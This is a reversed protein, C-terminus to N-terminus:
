KKRGKLADLLKQLADGAQKQVQEELGQQAAGALLQALDPLALQPADLTGGLGARLKNGGLVAAIKRGDKHQQLMATLDLGFDLRGDLHVAGSLAYEQGKSIWSLLESKITGQQLTFGGQLRDIALRGGEGVLALLGQLAPAPALSGQSLAIEGSGHWSDFVQVWNQEPLPRANGQLQLQLDVHSQFSAADGQLGALLPVAYRLVPATGGAVKGDKWGLQVALPLAGAAALDGDVQLTVAGANLLTGSGTALKLKGQQLGVDAALHELQFGLLEFRQVALDADAVLAALLQEPQPLEGGFPLAARAQLKGGSGRLAVPVPGGYTALQELDVECAIGLGQGGGLLQTAAAADLGRLRVAGLDAAFQTADFGRPRDDADLTLTFKPLLQWKAAAVQMGRLLSGSLRPADVELRGDSQLQRGDGQGVVKATADGDVVGGLSLAGGGLVADALPQWRALDLRRCQLAADVALTDSDVDAHAALRGPEGGGSPRLAAAVELEFRPSGPQKEIKGHLERVSELLQGDRRLEVLGDQLELDLRLERLLRRDPQRDGGDGPGTGGTRGPLLAEVNTRGGVQDVYLQLGDVRAALEYHGFLARWLGFRLEADRLQLFPHAPDFGAANAIRLGGVAIGSWGVELRQLQVETHLQEGLAAAVRARAWDSSAVMPAVLLVGVVLLLLLLLSLWLWRWRRSRPPVSPPVRPDAPPDAPHMHPM